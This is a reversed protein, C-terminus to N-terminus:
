SIRLQRIEHVPLVQDLVEASLIREAVEIRPYRRPFPDGLTAAHGCATEIRRIGYAEGRTLLDKLRERIQEYRRVADQLGAAEDVLAVAALAERRLAGAVDLWNEGTHEM